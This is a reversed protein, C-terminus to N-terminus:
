WIQQPPVKKSMKKIKECKDFTSQSTQPLPFSKLLNWVKPKWPLFQSYHSATIDTFSLVFRCFMIRQVSCILAAETGKWEPSFFCVFDWRNITVMSRNSPLATSSDCHFYRCQLHNWGRLESTCAASVVVEFEASLGKPDHWERDM